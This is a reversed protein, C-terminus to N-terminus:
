SDLVVAVRRDLPVPLKPGFCIGLRLHIPENGLLECGAEEFISM